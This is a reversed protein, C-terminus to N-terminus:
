INMDHSVSTNVQSKLGGPLIDRISADKLSIQLFINSLFKFSMKLLTEWTIM